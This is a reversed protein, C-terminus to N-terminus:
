TNYNLTLMAQGGSDCSPFKAHYCVFFKSVLWGVNYETEDM